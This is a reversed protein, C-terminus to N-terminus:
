APREPFLRPLAAPVAYALMVVASRLTLWRCPDGAEGRARAPIPLSDPRPHRRRWRGEATQLRQLRRLAPLMRRDYPVGARALAWLVEGLDTRALNPFGLRSSLLGGRSLADLMTEVSRDLLRPRRLEPRRGLASTLASAVVPGQAGSWAAASEELWALAEQCRLHRGFGLRALAEVLRATIVAASRGDSGGLPGGTPATALLEAAGAQLRPDEPDAGWAVAAVLRWGPGGYRVWTSTGTSWGGDPLLEALLAAVPGVVSAGGRARRVAPSDAPRGVLEVLVRWHLNPRGEDLLWPLCDARLAEWWAACARM